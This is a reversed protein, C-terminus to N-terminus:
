VQKRKLESRLYKYLLYYTVMEQKRQNDPFVRNIHMHIISKLFAATGGNKRNLEQQLPRLSKTFLGAAARLGAQDYFEHGSCATRIDPALERYKRDLEVRINEGTFEASFERYSSYCFDVQEEPGPIFLRIVETVSVLALLYNSAAPQKAQRKLFKVVLESSAWFHTETNEIGGASYRELERTYVDIQYERLVHHHIRDELQTKFAFLIETVNLPDIQMRLRIHPAHDEYRIFFWKRIPGHSYRKRLLPLVRLLLKGAGIKPSYIKLYLWESGPIYKRPQKATVPSDKKLAPLNVPDAPLVFANFQSTYYRGDFDRAQGRASAETFCEKVLVRDKQGIINKFLEIDEHKEAHIVLQQDGETFAFTGPLGKKLRLAQFAAYFGAKPANRIESLDPGSLIWTAASLITDRFKVRPYFSLGPFFRRLDLSLDSRGFQYPIDALFRFLPLKNLTHNYASTLRPMIAKGRSASRLVVQDQEVSVLVDSLPIQSAPGQTSSATLPLDWSWINERQNVNDTHPGSLHLIEAFLIHPNAREQALAMERAAQRIEPDTVTFRGILAPANVGGASELYIMKGWTRFLVSLGMPQNKASAERISLLEDEELDIVATKGEQGTHWRDLLYQHAPSWSILQGESSKPYIHLSELLPNDKETEQQQYGIGLEPDLVTMLPVSRGEFHQKFGKIFREMEPIREAPCLANLAFLGDSIGNQLGTDLKGGDIHRTLIVNLQHQQPAPGTNRPLLATLRHNTEQFLAENIERLDGAIKFTESFISSGSPALGAMKLKQTLVQLYSEGTINERLAHVLLQADKLFEVYDRAEEASCGANTELMTVLQQVTKGTQCFFLLEKLLRSFETSQLLYERHIIEPDVLTRIFRYEDLARYITPNAVLLNQGEPLKASLVAGLRAVYARDPNVMVRFGKFGDFGLRTESGWRIVSVSSFLGFPTPRFCFRNFYRLITLRQKENLDSGDSRNRSLSGYLAPSALYLAARFFPDALISQFDIQDYASSHKAPM